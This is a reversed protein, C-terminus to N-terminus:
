KDHHRALSSYNSQALSIISRYNEKLLLEIETAIVECPEDTLYPDPIDYPPKGCVESLLDVRGSLWPFEQLLAEKHGSEMTVVLDASRLIEDTVTRSLHKGLNLGRKAAASIAEPTASFSDETWTGASTVHWSALQPDPKIVNRLFCEALASRFRNHTCIFLISPM